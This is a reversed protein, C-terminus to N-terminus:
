VRIELGTLTEGQAEEETVTTEETGFGALGALSTRFDSTGEVQEQEDDVFFEEDTQESFEPLGTEPTDTPTDTPTLGTLISPSNTEQQLAVTTTTSTTTTTQTPLGLKIELQQPTDQEDLLDDFVDEGQGQGSDQGLDESLDEDIGEDLGTDIERDFTPGSFSPSSDAPQDFGSEVSSEPFDEAPTDTQGPKSEQERQLRNILDEDLSAADGTTDAEESRTKRRQIVRQASLVQSEPRRQAQALAAGELFGINDGNRLGQIESFADFVLDRRRRPRRVFQINQTGTGSDIEASVLERGGPGEVVDIEAAEDVVGEELDSVPRGGRGVSISEETVTGLDGTAFNVIRNDPLRDSVSPFGIERDQLQDALFETRSRPRQRFGVVTDGTEGPIEAVVTEGGRPSEKRRINAQQIAEESIVGEEIDSRPRGGERIIIQDETVTGTDGEVLRRAGEPVASPTSVSVSPTIAAAGVPGAVAARAAAEFGEESIEQTAFEGPDEQFQSVIRSGGRTFAAVGAGLGKDVVEEGTRIVSGTGGLGLAGLEGAFTVASEQIDKSRERELQTQIGPIQTEAAKKFDGQLALEASAPISAPGSTIIDPTAEQFGSAKRQATQQVDLGAIILEESLTPERTTEGQGVKQNLGYGPLPVIEKVSGRIPNEPETSTDGQFSFDTVADVADVREVTESQLQNAAEELKQGQSGGVIEARTELANKKEAASASPDEIISRTAELRNSKQRSLREAEEQLEENRVKVAEQLGQNELAERIENIQAPSEGGGLVGAEELKRQTADALEDAREAKKQEIRQELEEEREEVDIEDGAADLVDVQRGGGTLRTALDEAKDADVFDEAIRPLEDAVDLGSGEKFDADRQANSIKEAAIDIDESQLDNIQSFKSTVKGTSKSGAASKAKSFSKELASELTNVANEIKRNSGAAKSAKREFKELKEKESASLNKRVKEPVDVDVM